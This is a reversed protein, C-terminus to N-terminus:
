LENIIIKVNVNTVRRFYLVWEMWTLITITIHWWNKIRNKEPTQCSLSLRGFCWAYLSLLVSFMSLPYSWIVWHIFVFWFCDQWQHLRQLQSFDTKSYLLSSLSWTYFIRYTAFGSSILFCFSLQELLFLAVACQWLPCFWALMRNGNLYVVGSRRILGDLDEKVM